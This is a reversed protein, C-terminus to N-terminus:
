MVCSFTLHLHLHLPLPLALLLLLPLALAGKSAPLFLLGAVTLLWFALLFFDLALAAAVRVDCARQCTRATNLVRWGLANRAAGRWDGCHRDDLAQQPVGVLRM